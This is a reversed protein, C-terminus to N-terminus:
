GSVQQRRGSVMIIGVFILKIGFLIGLVWSGALPSQMWLIVGLLISVIGGLVLWMKGSEASARWGAMLEVVGDVIFYIALLIVLTRALLLPHSLLVVAAIITLVGLLVGLIGKGLSDARFAWILRFIGGVLVLVGVFMAVSIGTMVPAMLAIVGLVITLIGLATMTKGSADAGIM